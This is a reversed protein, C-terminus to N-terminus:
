RIIRIESDSEQIAYGERILIPAVYSAIATRTVNAQLWAGLSGPPPNDFSTGVVVIQGLYSNRLNSYQEATVNIFNLNGFEIGTGVAVCGTYKFTSRGAWTDITM